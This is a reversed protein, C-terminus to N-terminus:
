LRPLRSGQSWPPTKPTRTTGRYVPVPQASSERSTEGHDRPGTISEPYRPRRTDPRSSATSSCTRPNRLHVRDEPRRLDTYTRLRVGPQGAELTTTREAPSTGM